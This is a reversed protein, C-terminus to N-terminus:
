AHREKLLVMHNPVILRLHVIIGHYTKVPNALNRLITLSKAKRVARSVKTFDQGDRSFTKPECPFPQMWQATLLSPHESERFNIMMLEAVRNWSGNPKHVVTEYWKEESGPGFFPGHGAPSRAVYLLVQQIGHVFKMMERTGLRHRPVNVRLHNSRKFRGPQINNKEMM